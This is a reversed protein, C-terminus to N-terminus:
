CDRRYCGARWELVAKGCIQCEFTALDKHLSVAGLTRREIIQEALGVKAHDRAAAFRLGEEAIGLGLVRRVREAAVENLNGPLRLDGPQADASDQRDHIAAANNLGRAPRFWIWPATTIPIPM